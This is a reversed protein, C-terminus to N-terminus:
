TYALADPEGERVGRISHFLSVYIFM